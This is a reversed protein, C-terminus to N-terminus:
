VHAKVQVVGGRGASGLSKNAGGGGGGGGTPKTHQNRGRSGPEPRAGGGGAHSRTPGGSAGGPSASRLRQRRAVAQTKTPNPVSCGHCVNSGKRKAPLRLFRVNFRKNFLSLIDHTFHYGASPLAARPLTQKRWGRCPFALVFARRLIRNQWTEAFSLQM